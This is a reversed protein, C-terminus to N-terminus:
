VSLKLEESTVFTLPNLRSAQRQSRDVALMTM